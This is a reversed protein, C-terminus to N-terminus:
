AAEKVGLVGPALSTRVVECLAAASDSHGSSGRLLGIKIPPLSPLGSEPGLVRHTAPNISARPQVMLGLGAQVIPAIAAYNRSLLVLKAPIGAKSLAALALRRWACSPTSLAM